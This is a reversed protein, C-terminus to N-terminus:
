RFVTPYKGLGKQRKELGTLPSLSFILLAASHGLLYPNPRGVDLTQHNESVSLSCHRLPHDLEGGFAGEEVAGPAGPTGQESPPVVRM